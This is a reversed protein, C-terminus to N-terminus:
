YQKRPWVFVFNQSLLTYRPICMFAHRCALALACSAIWWRALKRDLLSSIECGPNSGGVEEKLNPYGELMVRYNLTIESWPSQKELNSWNTPIKGKEVMWNTFPNLTTVLPPSVRLAVEVTPIIIILNVHLQLWFNLIQNSLTLNEYWLGEFIKFTVNTSTILQVHNTHEISRWYCMIFSSVDLFKYPDQCSTPHIKQIKKVNWWIFRIFNQSSINRRNDSKSTNRM